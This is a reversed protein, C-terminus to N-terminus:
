RAAADLAADILAKFGAFGAIEAESAPSQTPGSSVSTGSASVIGEGAGAAINSAAEAGLHPLPDVAVGNLYFEFHLHPGTSLGTNGSLAIVEGEKVTAGPKIADPIESLHSYSTEFGNHKVRVHNGFGSVPGAIEVVGDASARVQSGIPAGFDIGAHLRLIHLIPHFRMGFLSTIPAGKIPALIGGVASAGTQVVASQTPPLPAGGKGEGGKAVAGKASFCRFNGDASEVVYCDIPGAGSTVGVYIVRGFVNSKGRFDKAYLARFNMDARLAAQLDTVSGLLAIAERIVPEPVGDRLGASYLGDQLDYRVGLDVPQGSQDLVGAPVTPRGGEAYVGNEGLAIAGVYENDEFLAFQAARYAGSPDRAGVVLALSQPPLTQVNFIAKAAAEVAQASEESYGNSVLLDSIKEALITKIVVSKLQTEGEGGGAIVELTNSNARTLFQQDADAPTDAGGDDDTGMDAGSTQDAGAMVAANLALQAALTDAERGGEPFKGMYGGATSLLEGAVFFAQADTKPAPAGIKTPLAVRVPKPAAATPGRPVLVPDGPLDIITSIKTPAATPTPSPTAAITETPAPTPTPKTALSPWLRWAVLAACVAFIALSAALTWYGARGAM